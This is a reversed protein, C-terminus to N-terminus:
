NGQGIRQWAERFQATDYSNPQLWYSDQAGKGHHALKKVEGPRIVFCTPTNSLNNVIVWFDGMITNLHNGLPVPDRRSLAKVQVLIRRSCDQSYAMLDVGRANRSTPMVNWGLCSLRYCVYYLGANSVAQKSLKTMSIGRPQNYVARSATAVPQDILSIIVTWDTEEVQWGQKKLADRIQHSNNRSPDIGLPVYEPNAQLWKKMPHDELQGYRNTIRVLFRKRAM